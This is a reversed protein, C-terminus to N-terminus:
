ATRRPRHIRRGMARRSLSRVENHITTSMVPKSEPAIEAGHSIRHIVTWRFNGSAGFEGFQADLGSLIASVADQVSAQWFGSVTGGEPYGSLYIRGRGLAGRFASRLTVAVCDNPPMGEDAQDGAEGAAFAMLPSTKPTVDIVEVSQSQYTTARGATWVGPNIGAGISSTLESVLSQALEAFTGIPATLQFSLNNIIPQGFYLAVLRATVLDNVDPM